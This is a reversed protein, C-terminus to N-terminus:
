DLRYPVRKPARPRRRPPPKKARTFSQDFVFLAESSTVTFSRRPNQPRLDPAVSTDLEVTLTTSPELPYVLHLVGEADTRAAHEGNVVVPLGPQETARVAVVVYREEPACRIIVRLPAEAGNLGVLQQLRLDPVAEALRFGDPCRAEIAFSDGPQGEIEASLRGGASTRGGFRDSAVAVGELPAGLDDLAQVEVQHRPAPAAESGCGALLLVGLGAGLLRRCVSM